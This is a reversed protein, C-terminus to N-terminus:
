KQLRRKRSKKKKKKQDRILDHYVRYSSSLAGFILMGQATLPSRFCNRELIGKFDLIPGIVKSESATVEKYDKAGISRKKLYMIIHFPLLHLVYIGPVVYFLNLKALDNRLFALLVFVWLITHIVCLVVFLPSIGPAEIEMNEYLPYFTILLTYKAADGM